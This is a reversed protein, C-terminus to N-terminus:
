LQIEKLLVSPDGIEFHYATGADDLSMTMESHTEPFLHMNGFFPNYTNGNVWMIWATPNGEVDKETYGNGNIRYMQGPKDYTVRTVERLKAMEIAEEETCFEFVDKDGKRTIRVITYEIRYEPSIDSMKDGLGIKTHWAKM